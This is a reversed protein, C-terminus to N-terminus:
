TIKCFKSNRTFVTKVQESIDGMDVYRAVPERTYFFEKYEPDFWTEIVRRLSIFYTLM